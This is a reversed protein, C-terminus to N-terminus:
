YQSDQDKCPFCSSLHNNKHWLLLYPLNFVHQSCFSCGSEVTLALNSIVCVTLLKEGKRLIHIEWQKTTPKPKNPNKPKTQKNTKLHCSLPYSGDKRTDSSKEIRGSSKPLGPVSNQILWSHHGTRARLTKTAPNICALIIWPVTNGKLHHELRASLTMLIGKFCAINTIILLRGRKCCISPALVRILHVMWFMGRGKFSIPCVLCFCTGSCVCDCSLQPQFHSRSIVYDLPGTLNQNHGLHLSRLKGPLGNWHKVASISLLKKKLELPYIKKKDRYTNMAEQGLERASPFNRARLSQGTPSSAQSEWCRTFLM